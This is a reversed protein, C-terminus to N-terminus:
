PLFVIRGLLRNLWGVPTIANHAADHGIVFLSGIVMPCAFVSLVRMWWVPLLFFGLFFAVYLAITVLTLVTGHVTSSKRWDRPLAARWRRADEAAHQQPTSM